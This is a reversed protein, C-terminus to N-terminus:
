ARYARVQEMLRNATAVDPVNKVQYMVGGPLTHRELREAFTAHEAFVAVPIDGARAKLGALVDFALPFGRDDLLLIAKLGKMTAAAELLHRGNGHIHLVGGDFAALIREAPARGWREFYAVSTMHFPDLSESVIRGPIWQAFNSFTGGAFMPVTEFFTRHVRVNLEFAFDIARRVIEPCEHLSLYTQTAGILEFVFNLADILIFHSIGWKGRSAAVFVDLQHRYRQWWLNDPDFRLRDFESWDRLLPPVMSSIWGVDPHALFRVEAGLLGGYLGQDFESLYASPLADDDIGTRERLLRDWFEARRDPDPYDCGAHPYRAAFADLTPSPVAMTAFIRDGARRDYLARLREVVEAADPKYALSTMGPEHGPSESNM